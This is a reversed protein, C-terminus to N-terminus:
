STTESVSSTKLNCSPAGNWSTSGTFPRATVEASAFYLRSRMTVGCGSNWRAYMNSAILSISVGSSVVRTIRVASGNAGSM